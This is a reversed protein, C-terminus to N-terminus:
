REDGAELSELMLAQQRSLEAPMTAFLYTFVAEPRQPPTDLYAKAAADMQENVEARLSVEDSETWGHGAALRARLRALPDKDRWLALDADARYRSADDVTTHDAMRYTLCEVLTPGGGSRARNVADGVVKAVAIVDNGDAQLGSFGAAVAKQALTAAGTQQSRPTSIAWQNNTVVFVVPLGRIGAANMAEYVDGKSSAGDGFVCVAVRPERRLQFALAVGAAHPAHGGVTVSVPFDQRPGAFDSGREDGGWYLFLELPTVGRMLQAGHERFSPVLVDEAQMAHAIGVGVAEQGLSSAYTGLRGTRHLEVARADFARTLHMGRYLRGLVRGDNLAPPPTQLLGGQEDLYATHEVFFEAVRTM